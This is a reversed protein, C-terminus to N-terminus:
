GIATQAGSHNLLAAKQFWEMAIVYDRRVGDGKLFSLGIANKADSNGQAAAKQFWEMAKAYSQRVNNGKFYMEGLLYQAKADGQEALLRTTEFDIVTIKQKIINNPIVVTTSVMKKETCGSLVISCSIALLSLIKKM